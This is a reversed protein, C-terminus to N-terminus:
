WVPHFEAKRYRREQDLFAQTEWICGGLRDASTFEHVPLGSADLLAYRTKRGRGPRVELEFGFRKAWRQLNADLDVLMAEYQM